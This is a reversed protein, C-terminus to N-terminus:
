PLAGSSDSESSSGKLDDTDRLGCPDLERREEFDAFDKQSFPPPDTSIM